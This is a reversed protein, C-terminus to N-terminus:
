PAIGDLTVFRLLNFFTRLIYLKTALSPSAAGVKLYCIQKLILHNALISTRYGGHYM